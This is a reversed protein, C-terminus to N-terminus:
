AKLSRVSDAAHFAWEESEDLMRGIIEILDNTYAQLDFNPQGVLGHRTALDDTNLQGFENTTTETTM